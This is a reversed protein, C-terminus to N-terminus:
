RNEGDAGVHNFHIVIIAKNCKFLEFQYLLGIFGISLYFM